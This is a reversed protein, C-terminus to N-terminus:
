DYSSSFQPALPGDRLLRYGPINQKLSALPNAGIRSLGVLELQFMFRTVAESQGTSQREAVVRAIWCGADYEFGLLTDILRKERISYNGRGVTYLAGNCSGPDGAAAAEDPTRGFIPWQWGLEVQESQDRTFRYNLAITRFAGPVYNAGLTSRVFKGLQPRYQTEANLSWNPIVNTSGFLLLDSVRQTLPKNDPTVRQDQFSYSQLVGLRLLEGASDADLFRTTVGATVQNADSVRDVGSFINESFRSEPNVDKAASDFNPLDDQRRYPTYVYLLRPELTQVLARGFVSTYREFAWASDLSFTPIVRSPNKRGDALPEDLEYSAANLSVKPTLNWGPSLWPLSLSALSHLRSGEVRNPTPNGGPNTFRNFEGEFGLELGYGLAQQIRAGIQPTRQYPTEFRSDPNQLAQWTQVRAYTTWDGFPRTARADSLLLRPTLNDPDRQFDKWYDRDSVRLVRVKLETDDPWLAEHRVGISYRSRGAVRDDPLVDLNLRGSYNPELYRFETGLGVGRKTSLLPTFTADRNPAINWYWPVQLQAGTRSDFAFSPPLWGSKREGTLPFRLFPSALIPLGMFRLVAGEAFGENADFDMRVRTSSLVWDPSGGDEPRCSSYTADFAVSRENDIFDIREAVGGAATLGFFYTPNIFFGEFRQVKLQLEPGSYRNGGQNIKVQGRALALDEAHDYSLLDAAISLDGRRMVADGEAVTEIDPRGRM